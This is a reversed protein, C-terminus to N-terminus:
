EIRQKALFAILAANFAAPNDEHVIHSARPIQVREARPLMEELADLLLSFLKPSREGGILLIPIQLTRLEAARLAPFGSGLFEASIFNARAQDLRSKSLRRFGEAGLVGSGFVQLAKEEDGRRAAATAPSISCLGFRLIAAATTPKKLALRLLEFPKPPNSLFLTLVPPEILVLTRVLDPKHLALLLAIFGGYSHGVVHAPAFERTQLIGKLDDVHEVM